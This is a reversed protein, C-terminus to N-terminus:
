VECIPDQRERQQFANDYQGGPYTWWLKYKTDDANCCPFVTLASTFAQDYIVSSSHM